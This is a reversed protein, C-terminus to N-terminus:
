DINMLKLNGKYKFCFHFIQEVDRVLRNFTDVNVRSIVVVVDDCRVFRLDSRHWDNFFIDYM